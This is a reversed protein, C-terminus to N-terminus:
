GPGPSSTAPVSGPTPAPTTGAGGEAPPPGGGGPGTGQGPTSPVAGGSPVSRVQVWFAVDRGNRGARVTVGPRLEFVTSLGTPLYVLTNRDLGLVVTAGDADLTLSHRALDVTRVVGEVVALAPAPAAGRAPEPERAGPPLANRAPPASPAASPQAAAPSALALLAVPFLVPM